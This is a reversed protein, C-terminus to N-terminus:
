QRRRHHRQLWRERFYSSRCTSSRPNPEYKLIGVFRCLHGAQQRLRILPAERTRGADGEMWFHTLDDWARAAHALHAPTHCSTALSTPYAHDVEVPEGSAFDPKENQIGLRLGLIDWSVDQTPDLLFNLIALVALFDLSAAEPSSSPSCSRCDTRSIFAPIRPRTCVGLAALITSARSLEPSECADKAARIPTDTRVSCSQSCPRRTRRFREDLDGLQM